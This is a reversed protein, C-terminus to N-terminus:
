IYYLDREHVERKWADHVPAVREAAPPRPAVAEARGRRAAAAAARGGGDGVVGLLVVALNGLVADGQHAGLADALGGEDALEHGGLADVGVVM